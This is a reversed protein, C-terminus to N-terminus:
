SSKQVMYFDEKRIYRISEWDHCLTDLTERDAEKLFSALEHTAKVGPPHFEYTNYYDEGTVKDRWRRRKYQIYMAKEHMPFTIVELQNLFGVLFVAGLVSVSVFLLSLLMPIKKRNLWYLLSSTIISIFIAFFFPVLIDKAAKMGAIIIVFSAIILMMKLANPQKKLTQM